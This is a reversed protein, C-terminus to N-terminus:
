LMGCRERLHANEIALALPGSMANLIRLDGKRFGYPGSLSDVYLVGYTQEHSVLPVCLLSGIELTSENESIDSPAEYDTNSMRVAKGEEMVRDIVVESFGTKSHEVDKKSRSVVDKKEKKGEDFLIVAARDIRPLAKLFTELLSELMEHLPTASRILRSLAYVTELDGSSRKRREDEPIGKDTGMGVPDPTMFGKKRLSPESPGGDLLIITNGLSITDGSDVEFGEGPPILKDNLWTGNTSKLDELFLKKGIFYLKIQKRSITSDKIQIDNRSSRGIFVTAGGLEFSKGKLPGGIIQLQQM